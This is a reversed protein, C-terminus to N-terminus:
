VRRELELHADGGSNRGLAVVCAARAARTAVVGTRGFRVRRHPELRLLHRRLHRRLQLLLLLFSRIPWMLAPLWVTTAASCLFHSCLLSTLIVIPTSAPLVRFGNRSTLM